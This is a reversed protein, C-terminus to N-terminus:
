GLNLFLRFFSNNVEVVSSRLSSDERSCEKSMWRFRGRQWSQRNLHRRYRMLWFLDRPQSVLDADKERSKAADMIRTNWDFRGSQLQANGDAAFDGASLNQLSIEGIRGYRCIEDILWLVKVALRIVPFVAVFVGVVALTENEKAATHHFRNTRQLQFDVQYVAVIPLGCQDGGIQFDFIALNRVERLDGRQHGDMIQSKLATEPM